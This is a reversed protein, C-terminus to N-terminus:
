TDNTDEEMAVAVAPDEAGVQDLLGLVVLITLLILLTLNNLQNSLHKNLNL